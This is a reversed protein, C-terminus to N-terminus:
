GDSDGTTADSEGEEYLWPGSFLVALRERQEETPSPWAEGIARARAEIAEADRKSVAM